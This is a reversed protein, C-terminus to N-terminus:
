FFKNKSKDQFMDLFLFKEVRKLDGKEKGKMIRKNREKKRVDEELKM